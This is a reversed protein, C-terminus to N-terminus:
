PECPRRHFKQRIREIRQRSEALGKCAGFNAGFGLLQLMLKGEGKIYKAYINSYVLFYLANVPVYCSDLSVDVLDMSRTEEDIDQGPRALAFSYIVTISSFAISAASNDDNIDKLISHYTALGQNHHATAIRRYKAEAIHDPPNSSSYSHALHLASLALLGHLLFHHKM